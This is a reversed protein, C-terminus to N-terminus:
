VLLTFAAGSSIMNTVRQAQVLLTVIRFEKCLQDGKRQTRTYELLVGAQILICTYPDVRDHCVLLSTLGNETNTVHNTLSVHSNLSQTCSHLEIYIWGTVINIFLQTSYDRTPNGASWSVVTGHRIDFPM